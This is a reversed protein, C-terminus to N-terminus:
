NENTTVEPIEKEPLPEKGEIERISNPTEIGADIALKHVEYRTKTDSRLLADLNFKFTQNEPLCESYAQEIEMYYNMSAFTIFSQNDQEVNQYTLPADSVSALMQSASVGFLRAFKTTAFQQNEIYQAEAPNLNINRYKYGNGLVAVGDRGGNSETWQDKLDQASDADFVQETEIVGTPVGGKSFWDNAAQILDRHAVLEPMAMDLKSYGYVSTSRRNTALHQIEDLGYDDGDYTYSIARTGDKTENITMLEPNMVELSTVKNIRDGNIDFSYNKKWYANAYVLLSWYTKEEFVKKSHFLSPKRIILPLTKLEKKGTYVKTGLQKFATLHIEFARQIDIFGVITDYSVTPNYSDRPPPKTIDRGSSNERIAFAQEPVAKLNPKTSTKSRNLIPM